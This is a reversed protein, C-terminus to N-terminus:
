LLAKLKGSGGGAAPEGPVREKLFPLKPLGLLGKGDTSLQPLRGSALTSGAQSPNPNPNPNPNPTPSPNPNPSPNVAESELLQDSRIVLNDM